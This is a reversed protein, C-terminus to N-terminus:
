EWSESGDSCFMWFDLMSVSCATLHFPGKQVKRSPGQRWAEKEAEVM